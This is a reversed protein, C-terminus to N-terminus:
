LEEALIEERTKSDDIISKEALEGLGRVAVFYQKLRGISDIDRVIENQADETQMVPEAKSMVARSAQKVFYGDLILTKFDKNAYLRRLCKLNEVAYKANSLSIEVETLAQESM